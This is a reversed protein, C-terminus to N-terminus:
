RLSCFIKETEKKQKKRFSKTIQQFLPRDDCGPRASVGAAGFTDGADRGAKLRM